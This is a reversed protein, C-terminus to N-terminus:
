DIVQRFTNNEDYERQFTIEYDGVPLKIATHEDHTLTAPEDAHLFLKEMRDRDYQGRQEFLIGTDLAHLHGTQEGEIIVRNKRAHYKKVGNKNGNYDTFEAGTDIPMDLKTILVEGQRYRIIKKEM